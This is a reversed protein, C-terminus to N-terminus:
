INKQSASFRSELKQLVTFLPLILIGVVANGICHLVDWPFGAAIWAITAKLDLQFALAQFPAYMIGFLLGHLACVFIFIVASLKRPMKKPLLMVVAWLVTWIYCYPMWWLSFGYYLGTIFVFMYIPILAEWRYVLTYVITLVAILHINPLFEMILKSVFMLDALMAFIILKRLINASRTLTVKSM